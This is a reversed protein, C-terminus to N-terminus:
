MTTTLTLCTLAQHHEVQRERLQRPIVFGICLNCSIVPTCKTCHSLFSDAHKGTKCQIMRICIVGLGWGLMHTYSIFYENMARQGSLFHFIQILNSHIAPIEFYHTM